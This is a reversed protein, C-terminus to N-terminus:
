HFTRVIEYTATNVVRPSAFLMCCSTGKHPCGTVNPLLTVPEFWKALLVCVQPRVSLSLLPGEQQRLFLDTCLFSCFLLRPRCVVDAFSM